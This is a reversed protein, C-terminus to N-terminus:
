KGILIFPAWHIPHNYYPHDIMALKADKLAKAKYDFFPHEYLGFWNLSRNWLGYDAQEFEIMKQYFHSMFESTSRDFVNWLSVMVSSAGATLFSRQLGLLGEGTISKGMGTNCASLTVLDANLKLGSIENSSLFGDEGALKVESNNTLILGSQSPNVEDITGHTAFHLFRFDSLNQSYFATETVEENKLIKASTFNAAISEVELLTSPLYTFSIQSRTLQNLDGLGSGEFGSGAMALLDYNTPRHPDQILSYISSSPLYKINYNEILYSSNSSIAEFPLYSLVGDPIVILNSINVAGNEPILVQYLEQGTNNLEEIPSQNLLEERFNRVKQILYKKASENEVSDIIDAKFDNETILFRLLSGGSFAYELIASESDLIASAQKASIPEPYEFEKWQPVGLRIENLFSQYEFELDKLEDKISSQEGSSETASIQNHLRNIEKIMQQKKLLSAEDINEYIKEKAEALEDMLVRSKAAEILEFAKEPDNKQTFYWSAVENYFGAHQRYYGARFTGGAVNTRISDILTFAEDAFIFASDSWIEQYARALNVTSTIKSTIKRGSSSEYAKRYEALSEYPKGEALYIEGLLNHSYVQESLFNKDRSIDKAMSIYNKAEPYNKKIEELNALDLYLRALLRPETTKDLWTLAERYLADANEFSHNQIAIGAIAILSRAISGPRNTKYNEELAENYYALANELDGSSRYLGGINSLTSTIDFSNNLMRSLKLSKQYYIISSDKKERMEFNWALNHYAVDLLDPRQMKERIKLSERIYPEAQKYLGLEMITLFTRNLVYSLRFREDLKEYIDIAKRQHSLAKEYDGFKQYTTSINNNLRGILLSDNFDNALDLGVLFHELAKSPKELYEYAIGINNKIRISLPVPQQWITVEDRELFLALGQSVEGQKILAIGYDLLAETWNVSDKEQLYLQMAKKFDEGAGIFDTESFLEDGSAILSDAVTSQAKLPGWFGIGSFVAIILIKKM